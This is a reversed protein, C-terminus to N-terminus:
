SYIDLKNVFRSQEEFSSHKVFLETISNPEIKLTKDRSIENDTTRRQLTKSSNVINESIKGDFKIKKLLDKNVEKIFDYTLLENKLLNFFSVLEEKNIKDKLLTKKVFKYFSKLISYSIENILKLDKANKILNLSDFKQWRKTILSQEKEYLESKENLYLVEELACFEIRRLVNIYFATFLEHMAYYSSNKNIFKSAEELYLMEEYDLNYTKKDLIFSDM